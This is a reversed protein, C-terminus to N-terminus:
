DGKGWGLDLLFNMEEGTTLNKGHWRGGSLSTIEVSDGTNVKQFGLNKLKCSEQVVGFFRTSEESENRTLTEMDPKIGLQFAIPDIQAPTILDATAASPIIIFFLAVLLQCLFAKSKNM